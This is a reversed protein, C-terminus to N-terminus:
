RFMMIEEKIQNENKNVSTTEQASVNIMCLCMVSFVCLVVQLIKLWKNEKM